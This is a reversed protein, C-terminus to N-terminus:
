EGETIRTEGSRLDVRVFVEGGLVPLDTETTRRPKFVIRWVDYARSEDTATASILVLSGARAGVAAVAADIAALCLAAADRNM